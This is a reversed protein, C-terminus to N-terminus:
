AMFTLATALQASTANKAWAMPDAGCSEPAKKGSSLRKVFENRYATLDQSAGSQEQGDEALANKYKDVDPQFDPIVYDADIIEHSKEDERKLAEALEISVPLMKFLRRLVTKKAMEDYSDTWAKGQSAKSYRTRVSDIEPVSMVDFQVGGGQLKAVAYVHTLESSTFKPEHEIKDETGYIVKFHDGEYVARACISVIHGSRRAIDIMGRYGIQFEVENKYPVLYCQGLASGPELGLSAATVVAGLFSMHDCQQLRPNKRFETLCIRMLRDPTMHQPLAAVIQGKYTQMLHSLKTVPSLQQQSSPKQM